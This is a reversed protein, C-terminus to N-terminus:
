TRPNVVWRICRHDAASLVAKLSWVSTYADLKEAQNEFLLSRRRHRSGYSAAVTRQEKDSRSVVLGQMLAIALVGDPAHCLM